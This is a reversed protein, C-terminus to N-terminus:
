IASENQKPVRKPSTDRERELMENRLLHFYLNFRIWEIWFSQVDNFTKIQHIFILLNWFTAMLWRDIAIVEESLATRLNIGLKYIVVTNAMRLVVWVLNWNKFIWSVLKLRWTGRRSLACIDAGYEARKLPWLIEYLHICDEPGELHNCCVGDEAVSLRLEVRIIVWNACYGCAHRVEFM